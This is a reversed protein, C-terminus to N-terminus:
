QLALNFTKNDCFVLDVADIVLSLRMSNNEDVIVIYVPKVLMKCETSHRTLRAGTVM